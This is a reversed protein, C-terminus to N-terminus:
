RTVVGAGRPSWTMGQGTCAEAASAGQSPSYYCEAAILTPGCSIECCGALGPSPCPGPLYGSMCSGGATYTCMQDPGSGTKEYCGQPGPPGAEDPPGAESVGVMSPCTAACNAMQCDGVTMSASLCSSQELQSGCTEENVPTFTGGPCVCDVYGSCASLFSDIESSCSTLLCQACDAPVMSSLYGEVCAGADDSKGAGGDNAGGDTADGKATFTEIGIIASCGTAAALAALAALSALTSLTAVIRLHVVARAM